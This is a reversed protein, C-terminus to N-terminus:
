KKSEKSATQIIYDILKQLPTKEYLRQDQGEGGREKLRRYIWDKIMNEIIQSFEKKYADENVDALATYRKIIVDKWLSPRLLLRAQLYNAFFDDKYEEYKDDVSSTFKDNEFDTRYLNLISSIKTHRHKEADYDDTIPNDLLRGYMVSAYAIADVDDPYIFIQLLHGGADKMYKKYCNLLRKIYIEDFHFIEFYGKIKGVVDIPHISASKIFFNFSSEGDSKANGFVCLNASLAYNTFEPDHDKIYCDAKFSPCTDIFTNVNPYTEFGKDIFRLMMSGSADDIFFLKYLASYFDFLLGVGTSIVTTTDTTRERYGAYSHYFVYRNKYLKEWRFIKQAIKKYRDSWPTIYQNMAADYDFDAQHHHNLFSQMQTPMDLIKQTSTKKLKKIESLVKIKQVITLAQRELPDTIGKFKNRRLESLTESKPDSPVTSSTSAAGDITNAIQVAFLLYIRCFSKINIKM